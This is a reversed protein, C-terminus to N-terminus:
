RRNAFPRNTSAMNSSKWPGGPRLENPIGRATGRHSASLASKWRQQTQNTCICRTCSTTRPVLITAGLWRTAHGQGLHSHGIAIAELEVKWAVSVRIKGTWVEPQIWSSSFPCLVHEPRCDPGFSHAPEMKPPSDGIRLVCPGFTHASSHDRKTQFRRSGLSSNKPSFGPQGIHLLAHM